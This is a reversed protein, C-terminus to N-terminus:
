KGYTITVVKDVDRARSERKLDYINDFCNNPGCSNKDNLSKKLIM